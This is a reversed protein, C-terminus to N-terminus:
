AILTDNSSIANVNIRFFLTNAQKNVIEAGIRQYFRIGRHNNASATWGIHICNTREAIEALTKMLSSGVGKSRAESDVYLDDLWLSPQAAFSSYRFYYLAFSIPKGLVEGFLVKAFPVEGFLSQELKEETVQLVGEFVKMNRDFEAKKHLFSLILPIDNETAHRTIVGPSFM